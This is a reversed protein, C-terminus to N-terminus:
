EQAAPPATEETAPTAGGAQSQESNNEAPTPTEPALIFGHPGIVWQKGSDLDHEDSLYRVFGQAAEEAKKLDEQARGIDSQLENFRRMQAKSFRHETVETTETKVEAVTSMSGGLQTPQTNARARKRRSKSNDISM